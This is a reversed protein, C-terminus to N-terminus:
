FQYYLFESAQNLWLMPVLTLIAIILAWAPTPRWQWWAVLGKGGANLAPEFNGMVEQTNPFFWVVALCLATLLVQRQGAFTTRMDVFTIWPTLHVGLQDLKGEWQYPLRVGNLGAMGRLVAIAATLSPARFFVWAVTVALFTVVIGVSREAGRLVGALGLGRAAYQWAHNLVLYIGHLAGWLVFTWSAGHWLGGLVMTVMLNLYRRAPGRRNGGLSIYLYDRLFQSLTMHWRRWFEIINHAKYPSSFNLPFRVGCMRALGIAMDSYGSFDFYLQLSFAVVGAWSEIVGLGQGQVAADFVPSVFKALSDAIIVKKFLGFIFIAIGVELDSRRHDKPWSFQPVISAHHLIPGAILHPFFTVFLLYRSFSLDSAEGRYLDVLFAIQTFTFFSIGLPLIIAGISYNLGTTEQVVEMFFNAYKFYGLLALNAVVACTLIAFAMRAKSKQVRRMLTSFGYNGVVSVVLLPVYRPNWGAYFALSAASLWVVCGDPWWRVLLWYGVLTIPLYIFIFAYSNFLM